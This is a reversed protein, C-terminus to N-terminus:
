GTGTLANGEWDVAVCDAADACSAGTLGDGSTAAPDIDSTTSWTSGNFTAANGSLDGMLCFHSTTCSIARPIGASDITTPLTWTSGNFTYEHGGADIAVCFSSTPCSIGDLDATVGPDLLTATSWSTGNFTFGNGAADVAACFTPSACSIYGPAPETGFGPYTDLEADNLISTGNWTATYVSGYSDYTLMKCFDPGTCSVSSLPLGDQGKYQWSHGNFIFINGGLGNADSADVAMCFDPSSCSVSDVESAQSGITQPSSWTKGNYVLYAGSWDVAVCYSATPCSVSYTFGHLPGGPAASQTWSAGSLVFIRSADTVMCSMASACSGVMAKGTELSSAGTWTTGDTTTYYSGDSFAMCFTTGLPCTVGDMSGSSNLTAPGSWSGNYFYARGTSSVAVCFTADACSVQLLSIPADADVSSSWGSTSYTYALGTASVALCFSDSPCSVSEIQDVSSITVPASWSSGSFVAAQGGGTAMCFTPTACSVATAGLGISIASSWSTGDYTFSNGNADVAMCFTDSVCSLYMAYGADLYAGTEIRVPASWSTGNWRFASGSALDLGICFSPSTCSVTGLWGGPADISVPASFTMAPWVSGSASVTSTGGPGAVKLTLSYKQATTGSLAPLTLPVLVQAPTSGAACPTTVPLGAVAPTASVTCTTSRSVTASLDTAGGASPLDSPQLAVQTVAPAAERVVVTVPKAAAKGGHGSVTLGFKYAKKGAATNAPLRVSRSVRGSSCSVTAPLGHVRPSSTFVCKSGNKVTASLQVKGGAAPLSAASARFHTVAPRSGAAPAASAPLSTALLCLAAGTAAAITRGLISGM